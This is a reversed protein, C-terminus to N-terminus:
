AAARGAFLGQPRVLLVLIFVGYILLDRSSPGVLAVGVTELLGVAIGSFVSGALNGLGGLIIVVFAITSYPTGMGPTSSQSLGVLSGALGGLAFGAVSSLAFAREVDIGVIASAERSQILARVGLGWISLRFFALVAVVAATAVFLVILRSEAVSVSGLQILRDYGNYARPTGGFILEAVNQVISSLGFFVLLSSAEPGGSAATRALLSAFLGRYLLWGFLGTLLPAAILGLLPDLHAYALLCYGVYAGIMVLDGHGVNLLRMTGYILNLSVGILAYLMGNAVGVLLLQVSM